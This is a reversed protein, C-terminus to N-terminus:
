WDNNSDNSWRNTMRGYKAEIARPTRSLQNALSQTATRVSNKRPSNHARDLRSVIRSAQSATYRKKFAM